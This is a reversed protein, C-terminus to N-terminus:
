YHLPRHATYRHHTYTDSHIITNSHIHMLTYLQQKRTNGHIKLMKQLKSVASKPSAKTIPGSTCIIVTQPVGPYQPSNRVIRVLICLSCSKASLGMDLNVPFQLIKQHWNMHVEDAYLVCSVDNSSFSSKRVKLCWYVVPNDIFNNTNSLIKKKKYFKNFEKMMNLM